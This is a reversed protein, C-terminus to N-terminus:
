VHHPAFSPSVSYTEVLSMSNARRACRMIPALRYDMFCVVRRWKGEVGAWDWPKRKDMGPASYPRVSQIGWQPWVRKWSTPFDRLNLLVINQIHRVHDWNVKLRRNGDLLYPGWYTEQRYKRLDYVFCRSVSRLLALRKNSATTRGDEHSLALCSQLRAFLQRTCDPNDMDRPLWPYPTETLFMFVPSKLLVSEAWELNFSSGTSGPPASGIASIVTDLARRLPRDEEEDGLDVTEEGHDLVTVGLIPSDFRTRLINEAEVRQQVESRWDIEASSSPPCGLAKRPDDFPYSLLSERWLMQDNANYVIDHLPRCAAACRAIDRPHCFKLVHETLEQPITLLSPPLETQTTSM